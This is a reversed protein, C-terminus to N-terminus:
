HLFLTCNMDSVPWVVVQQTYIVRRKIYTGVLITVVQESTGQVKCTYRNANYNFTLNEVHM